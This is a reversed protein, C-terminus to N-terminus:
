MELKKIVNKTQIGHALTAGGRVAAASHIAEIMQEQNVSEELLKQTFSDICYPCQISEPSETLGFLELAFHRVKYNSADLRGSCSACYLLVGYPAESRLEESFKMALEPEKKIACGGCGCCQVCSVQKFSTRCLGELQNFIIKEKKDPCPLFVPMEANVTNVELDLEKIKEYISVVKV